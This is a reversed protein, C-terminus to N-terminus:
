RGTVPMGADIKIRLLRLGEYLAHRLEQVAESDSGFEFPGAMREWQQALRSLQKAGLTAASGKLSHM